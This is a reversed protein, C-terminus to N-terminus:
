RPCHGPPKRTTPDARALGVDTPILVLKAAHVRRGSGPGRDRCGRDRSSETEDRSLRRRRVEGYGLRALLEAVDAAAGAATELVLWGGPRLVRAAARAVAEAAGVAVLAARAGSSM